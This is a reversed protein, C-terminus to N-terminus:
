VDEALTDAIQRMEAIRTSLDTVQSDVGTREGPVLQLARVDDFEAERMIAGNIAVQMDSLSTRAVEEQAALPEGGGQGRAAALQSQQRALVERMTRIVAETEANTAEIDRNLQELREENTAFQSQLFGVYNGGVLGGSFGVALGLPLPAAHLESAGASLGTSLLAGELVTRQMARSQVALRAEPTEAEALAANTEAPSPAAGSADTGLPISVAGPLPADTCAALGIGLVFVTM